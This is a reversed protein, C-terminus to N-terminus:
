ALPFSELFQSVNLLCSPHGSTSHNHRALLALFLALKTEGEKKATTSHQFVHAIVDFFHDWGVLTHSTTTNSTSTPTTTPSHQQIQPTELWDELMKMSSAALQYSAEEKGAVFHIQAKICTLWYRVRLSLEPTLLGLKEAQLIQTLHGDLQASLLTVDEELQKLSDAHDDLSVSLMYLASMTNSITQLVENM